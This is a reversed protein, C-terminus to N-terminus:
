NGTQPDLMTILKNSEWFDKPFLCVYFWLLGASSQVSLCVYYVTVWPIEVQQRLGCASRAIVPRAFSNKNNTQLWKWVFFWIYYIYIWIYNIKNDNILGNLVTLMFLNLLSRLHDGFLSAYSWMSLYISLCLSLYIYLSSQVASPSYESYIYIYIKKIMLIIEQYTWAITRVAGQAQCLYEM